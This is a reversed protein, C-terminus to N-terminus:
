HCHQRGRSVGCAVGIRSDVPLGVRLSGVGHCLLPLGACIVRWQAAGEEAVGVDMCRPGKVGACLVGAILRWLGIVKGPAGRHSYLWVIVPVLRQALDQYVPGEIEGRYRVVRFKETLHAHAHRRSQGAVPVGDADGVAPERGKGEGGEACVAHGALLAPPKTALLVTVAEGRGVACPLIDLVRCLLGIIAAAVAAKGAEDTVLPSGADPGALVQVVIHDEAVFLHGAVGQAPYLCRGLDLEPIVKLLLTNPVLGAAISHHDRM